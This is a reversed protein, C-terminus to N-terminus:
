NGVEKRIDRPYQGEAAGSTCPDWPLDINSLTGLRLLNLGESTQAQTAVLVRQTPAQIGVNTRGTTGSAGALRNGQCWPVEPVCYM